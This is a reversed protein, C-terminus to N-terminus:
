YDLKVKLVVERDFTKKIPKSLKAVALLNLDNDNSETFKIYNVIEMHLQKPDKYRNEDLYALFEEDCEGEFPVSLNRFDDPILNAVETMQWSTIRECKRIQM